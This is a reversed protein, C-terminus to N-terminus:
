GQLMFLPGNNTANGEVCYGAYQSSSFAPVTTALATDAKEISGDHRWFAGFQGNTGGVGAQPSSWCLGKVQVWFYKNAASVETAPLGAIPLTTTGGDQL